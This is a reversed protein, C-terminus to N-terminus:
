LYILNSNLFREQDDLHVSFDVHMSGDIPSSTFEQITLTFCFAILHGFSIARSVHESIGLRTGLSRKMNSHTAPAQMLMQVAM